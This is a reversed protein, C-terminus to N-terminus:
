VLLASALTLAVMVVATTLHVRYSNVVMGAGLVCVMILDFIIGEPSVISESWGEKVVSDVIGLLFSIILVSYFWHRRAIFYSFHDGFEDVNDPLLVAALFLFSGCYAIQFLYTAFTWEVKAFSHAEDWWFLTVSAFLFFSWLGHLLNIRHSKPQQVFKAVGNLLRGLTLGLLTGSILRVYLLVDTDMSTVPRGWGNADRQVRGPLLARYHGAIILCM